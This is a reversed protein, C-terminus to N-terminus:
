GNVIKKGTIKSFIKNSIRYINIYLSSLGHEILARGLFQCTNNHIFKETLEVFVVVAPERSALKGFNDLHQTLHKPSLL